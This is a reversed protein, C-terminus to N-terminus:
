QRRRRDLMQLLTDGWRMFAAGTVLGVLVFYFAADEGNNTLRLVFRWACWGVFLSVFVGFLGTIWAALRLNKM